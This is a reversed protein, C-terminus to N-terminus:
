GGRSAQERARRNAAKALGGLRGNVQEPTWQNAAPDVTAKLWQQRKLIEFYLTEGTADIMVQTLLNFPRGTALSRYDGWLVGAGGNNAAGLPTTIVGFGDPWLSRFETAFQGARRATQVLFLVLLPVGFLQVYREQLDRYMQIKKLITSLSEIGSDVEIAFAIDVEGPRKPRGDFFPVGGIEDPDRLDDPSLRLIVIADVRQVDAKTVFETQVYVGRVFRNRAASLLLNTCWWSVQLDHALTRADPKRGRPDRSVLRTMTLPDTEVELTELLSKGVDALGYIRTGHIRTKRAMRAENAAVLRTAMGWIVEDKEMQRLRKRVSELGLNPMAIAQIQEATMMELRGLARLATLEQRDLSPIASPIVLGQDDIARNSAKKATTM